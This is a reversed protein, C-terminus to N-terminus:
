TWLIAVLVYIITETIAFFGSQSEVNTSLMISKASWTLISNNECNILSMKFTGWFNSLYKVPAITDVKKRGNNGTSGTINPKRKSSDTIANAVDFDVIECNADDIALEDRWYYWLTGSIKSYNNGYEILNYLPMVVEIDKTNDVKTNKIETICDTFRTCNKSM